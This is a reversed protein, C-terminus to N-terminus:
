APGHHEFGLAEWVPRLDIRQDEPMGAEHQEFEKLLTELKPRARPLAAAQRPTLGDLAPIAEGLWERMHRERLERVAALAEPPLAEGRPPPGPPGAARAARMLQEANEEKRLRFRVLGDLHEEIGSRLADARRTSNTEVRLRGDSLVIRGVITNDWSRHAANGPKVVPVV